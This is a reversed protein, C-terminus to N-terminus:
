RPFSGSRPPVAARGAETIRYLEGGSVSTGTWELFGRARLSRLARTADMGRLSVNTRIATIAGDAARLAGDQFAMRLIETELDSLDSM